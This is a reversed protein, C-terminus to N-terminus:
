ASRATREGGAFSPGGRTCRMQSPKEVSKEDVTQLLFRQFLQRAEGSCRYAIQAALLKLREGHHRIESGHCGM